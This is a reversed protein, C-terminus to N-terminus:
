VVVAFLWASTNLLWNRVSVKCSLWARRKPISAPSLTSFHRIEVKLIELALV